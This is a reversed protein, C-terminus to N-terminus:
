TLMWIGLTLLVAGIVRRFVAASLRLLIYSGAFTGAIVGATAIAMVRLAALMEPGAEWVYLPTRVLDVILAIAAATAIFERPSLDFALLGASRIGGQNGVMGGFVGSIAGAMWAMVGHFRIRQAVGALEAIGVFVLLVGLVRALVEGGAQTFVYAGALGGAASTVGFSRLVPWKISDRLRWLRIFTAIAHPFAVLAVALKAGYPATLLPTLLSGVGFGAISAVAGAAIATFAVAFDFGTM